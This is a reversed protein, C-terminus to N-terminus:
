TLQEGGAEAWCEACYSHSEQPDQETVAAPKGCLNGHEDMWMGCTEGSTAPRTTRPADDDPDGFLNM